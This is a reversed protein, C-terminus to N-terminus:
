IKEAIMMKAEEFEPYQTYLQIFMQNIMEIVSLMDTKTMIGNKASREVTESIEAIIKEMESALEMHRKHSKTGEVKKRLKLLYFPLLISLKQEELDKISHELYKFTKM